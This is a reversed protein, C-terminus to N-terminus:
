VKIPDREFIDGLNYIAREATTVIIVTDGVKLVDNGNPIIVQNSRSICTILVNSKLNLKWLPVETYATASSVSFEIAEAKSDVIHHLAKVSGEDGRNSIARVYRVIESATLDKPCVVSGLDRNAFLRAYENRDIKTITKKVGIHTCYMSIILNEEDIGTLTIVADTNQVNASELFGHKSANGNIVLAKPFRLSFAECRSIDKEIVTVDIGSKELEETLYEAIRSCGILMVSKIKHSVLGLSKILAALNNRAATVTIKDGAMLTFSGNPIYVNNEREVACILVRLGLASAVEMIKKGNLRSDETIKFEVLEVRGKDFSDRKLFSPFQIMRYIEHAATLEPNVALSLGLENKLFIVQKTYQPNRVRAITHKCGLKKACICALLNTEDANTAAILIDAKDSSARKLTELAAGNGDVALVDLAEQAEAIVTASTDIITIDHNEHTLREALSYGVKGCGVIIIKM